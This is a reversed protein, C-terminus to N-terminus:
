GSRLVLLVIIFLLYVLMSGDHAGFLHFWLPTHNGSYDLPSHTFSREVNNSEARHVYCPVNEVECVHPSVNSLRLDYKIVTM